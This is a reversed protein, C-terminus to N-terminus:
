YWSPTVYNKPGPHPEHQLPSNSRTASNNSSTSSTAAAVTQTTTEPWTTLASRPTSPAPASCTGSSSSCPTPSPWQRENNAEDNPSEGSGSPSTATKPECQRGAPKSSHQNCGRIVPAPTPRATNAPPSTTARACGRGRPSTDPTAFRGMDVGIEALIIEANRQQIGPITTLLERAARFPVMMEEVRTDLRAIAASLYDVHAIIETVMGAHHDNFRGPVCQRLDSIKSRLRSRAMEALVDPDREGACLADLIMRGTMGLVDSAVSSLKVNADELVKQLRQTERAREETLQRRYRTVERLERIEVPPVFSGRMLGCELLQAIWTADNVDTKRGPVAKIHAPNVLLLEFPQGDDLVHWVPKWYVGTAEMAVSTVGCSILWSRLEVLQHEFTGFTRVESARKQRGSGPSRVCAVVTKKHVDLGACRDVLVEM